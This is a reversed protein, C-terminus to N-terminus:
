IGEMKALSLPYYILVGGIRSHCPVIFELGRQQVNLQEFPQPIELTLNEPSNKYVIAVDVGNTGAGKLQSVWEVRKISPSNKMFFELVTTDTGDAMRKTAILSFQAIPLLLTDPVEIGKTVDIVSNALNNLDDVIENGDKGAWLTNPSLSGGTGAAVEPINANSLLGPLNNVTDGFWAIQDVLQDNARRASAAKRTVLPKKAMTAARIEQLSYGYSGGVSRIVSTFEKGKVDSRPLDDAYDAIIKAMGVQDFQQYTISEAGPGAEGSVPILGTAKLEPYKIDYTKTKVHELERAFYQSENADLHVSDIIDM